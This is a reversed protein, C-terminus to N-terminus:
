AFRWGCERYMDCLGPDFGRWYAWALVGLAPLLLFWVTIALALALDDRRTM